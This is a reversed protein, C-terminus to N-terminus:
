DYRKCELGEIVEIVLNLRDSDSSYNDSIRNWLICLRPHLTNTSDTVQETLQVARDINGANANGEIFPLLEVPNLFQRGKGYALEDLEVVDGWRELQAALAAQQYFYCWSQGPENGYYHTLIQDSYGQDATITSLNSWHITEGIMGPYAQSYGDDIPHFVRLCDNGSYYVPISQSTVGSFVFPGIEMAIPDSADIPFNDGLRKSVTILSHGLEAQDNESSYVLNVMATFAEDDTYRFPLADTMISTGPEINPARWALQWIFDKQLIWEIRYSEATQYHFGAAFGIIVALLTVRKIQSNVVYEFFSVLVMSAGLMMGLTMRNDPFELSIAFPVMWAPIGACVMSTLGLFMTQGVWPQDPSTREEASQDKSSRIRMFLVMVLVTMSIVILSYAQQFESNFDFLQAIKMTQMFAIIVVEILDKFITQALGFSTPFPKAFFETVLQPDYIASPILFFRWFAYLLLIVLFPLWYLITQRFNQKPLSGNEQLLLWILLPRVLEWGVFYEISFISYVMGAISILGWAWSRSRIAKLMSGFSFMHIIFGVFIHSYMVSVFQQTFSPYVAFVFAIWATQRPRRPWVQLLFWWVVVSLVWRLGLNLLQWRLPDDGIIPTTMSYLWVIVPRSYKFISTFQDPGAWNYVLMLPWDDYYYGLQDILLGYSVYVLVALAFPVIVYPISIREVLNKTKTFLM